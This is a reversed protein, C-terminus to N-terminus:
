HDHTMTLTLPEDLPGLYAGLAFRWATDWDPGAGFEAIDTRDPDDCLEIRYVPAGDITDVKANVYRDKEHLLYAMVRNKNGTFYLDGNRDQLDSPQVTYPM